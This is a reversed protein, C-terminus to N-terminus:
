PPWVAPRAVAGGRPPDAGAEARARTRGAKRTPAIPRAAPRRGALPGSAVGGHEIGGPMPGGEGHGGGRRLGHAVGGLALQGRPQTGDACRLDADQEPKGQRQPAQARARGRDPARGGPPSAGRMPMAVRTAVDPTTSIDGREPTLPPMRGITSPRSAPPSNPRDAM